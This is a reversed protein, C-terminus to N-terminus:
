SYIRIVRMFFCRSRRRWAVFGGLWWFGMRTIWFIRTIRPLFNALRSRVRQGRLSVRKGMRTIRTMRGFGHYFFGNTGDLGCVLGREVRLGGVGGM